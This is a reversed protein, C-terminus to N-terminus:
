DNKWVQRSLFHLEFDPQKRSELRGQVQQATRGVRFGSFLVLAFSYQLVRVKEGV